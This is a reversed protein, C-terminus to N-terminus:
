SADAPKVMVFRMRSDLFEVATLTETAYVGSDIGIRHNYIKPKKSFHEISHGHIIIENFPWTTVNLFEDRIWTKAELTQNSLSYRPDVGAHVFFLQEFQFSESMTTLMQRVTSPLANEIKKKLTEIPLDINVGLSLLTAKGGNRKWAQYDSETLQGTLARCLWVDHNGKLAIDEVNMKTTFSTVGQAALKLCEKSNPGRDILDGILICITKEPDLTEIDDAISKYMLELHESCGHVDGIAVVMTGHDIPRPNDQWETRVVLM